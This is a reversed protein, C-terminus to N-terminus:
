DPLGLVVSFFISRCRNYSTPDGREGDVYIEVSYVGESEAFFGIELVEIQSVQYGARHGPQPDAEIEYKLVEMTETGPGLVYISISAQEDELLLFRLALTLDIDAPLSEVRFTDFGAGLIDGTGDEHSEYSDCLVVWDLLV